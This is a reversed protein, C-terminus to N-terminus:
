EATLWILSAMRGTVHDRRYSFFRDEDTYTCYNEDISGGYIANVGCANLRLKALMYLDALWKAGKPEFALSAQSDQKVFAERVDSGVEFASPGIAPGLWAMLQNCAVPMENVTSEIVGHCLGRWGAHIAAVATGANDCLLVPLCDATMAACVVNAQTTFSADAKEICRSTAADIAHTGHVQTMWVPETPVLQNLLQRNRVVSLPNDSVHDGVNMSGYPAASVGGLRTTQYAHVNKPAPWHPSILSQSLTQDM